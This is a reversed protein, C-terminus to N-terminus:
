LLGLPKLVREMAARAPEPRGFLYGQGVECQARKLFNLQARTEIGEAVVDFGLTHAMEIIVPVLRATTADSEGAEAELESVFARDIKVRDVPLRQLYALSSHGTGFDDISVRVGLERLQHLKPIVQDIDDMMASETIEVELTGPQLEFRRVASAVSEVFDHQSLQLPSVNVGFTVTPGRFENWFRAARCVEELAWAGIEIIMRIDEALPIFKSPPIRGLRPHTWRALAEFGITRGTRLDTQPQLHMTLERNVIADRLATELELREMANDHIDPAFFRFTGHEREKARYLAADANRLLTGAESGDNPYMAIGITTTIVLSFNAIEFPRQLAAMLKQAVRTAGATDTLETLVAAFEDGGMRALTDTQRLCTEFRGAVERLLADGVSHGLTDNVQKFRDLDIYLLGVMHGNRRAQGLARHVRAKLEYRNPLHTLPDYQAQYSLMSQRRRQELAISALDAVTLIAEHCEATALPGDNSLVDIVGIPAGHATCIPYSILHQGAGLERAMAYPATFPNDGIPGAYLPQNRENLPDAPIKHPTAGIAIVSDRLAEPVRKSASCTFVDNRRAWVFCIGNRIHDEVYDALALFVDEIRQTGSVIRTLDRHGQERLQAAKLATIDTAITLVYAHEDGTILPQRRMQFWRTRGESDIFQEERPAHSRVSDAIATTVRAFEGSLAENRDSAVAVEAEHHGIMQDTSRGFLAAGAANVMVFCDRDDKIFIPNPNSDVIQQLLEPHTHLHAAMAHAASEAEQARDVFPTVDNGRRKDTWDDVPPPNVMLAHPTDRPARAKVQPNGSTPTPLPPELRDLLEWPRRTESAAEVAHLEAEVNRALQSLMMRQNGDFTARPRPDFVCLVGIVDGRRSQLPAGAYFRLHPAGSVCNMRAFRADAAADEVALMKSGLIAHSCFFQDREVREFPFDHTAMFRVADRQVLTVAAHATQLSRAAMTVAAHVPRLDSAGFAEEATRLAHLRERENPPMLVPM